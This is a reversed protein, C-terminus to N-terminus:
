ERKAMMKEIEPLYESMITTMGHAYALAKAHSGSEGSEKVMGLTKESQMGQWNFFLNERSKEIKENERALVEEMTEASQLATVYKERTLKFM